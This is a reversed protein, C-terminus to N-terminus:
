FKFVQDKEYGLEALYGTLDGQTFNPGKWGSVAEYFGKPGCVFVKQSSKKQPSPLLTSITEKDIRVGKEGSKPQSIFYHVKLRDPYKSALEALEPALIVDDETRSAYLLTIKTTDKPDSLVQKIVQYMPTIGTGAALMGMHEVMNTEIPLKQWPGKFEVKDGVKLANVYEGAKGGPYTKIVLDFYGYAEQDLTTPTYPRAVEEEDAATPVRLSLCSAVDMGLVHSQDELSFRYLNTDPTLRERYSLPFARWEKPSLSKEPQPPLEIKNQVPENDSFLMSSLWYGGVIGTAIGIGMWMSRNPGGSATPADGGNTQQRKQTNNRLFPQSATRSNTAASSFISRSKLISNSLFMKQKNL